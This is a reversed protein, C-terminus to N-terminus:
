TRSISLVILSPARPRPLAAVPLPLARVALLRTLRGRRWLSPAILLILGILLAIVCGTMLMSHSPTPESCGDGCHTAGVAAKSMREDDMVTPMAGGPMTEAVPHDDEITITPSTHGHPGSVSLAHMALLGSIVLILMSFVFLGRRRPSGGTASRLAGM